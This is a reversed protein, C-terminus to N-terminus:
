VTFGTNPNTSIPEDVSKNIVRLLGPFGFGSLSTTKTLEKLIKIFIVTKKLEGVHWSIQSIWLGGKLWTICAGENALNDDLDRSGFLNM